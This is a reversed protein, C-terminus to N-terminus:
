KWKHTHKNYYILIAVDAGKEERNTHFIKGDKWIWYTYLKKPLIIKNLSCISTDQKWDMGGIQM